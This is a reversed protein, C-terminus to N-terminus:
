KNAIMSSLGNILNNAMELSIKTYRKNLPISTELVFYMEGDKVCQLLTVSQNYFFSKTDGLYFDKVVNGGFSNKIAINRGKKTFIIGILVFFVFFILVFPLITSSM